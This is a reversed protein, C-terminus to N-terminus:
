PSSITFELEAQHGGGYPAGFRQEVRLSPFEYTKTERLQAGRLFHFGVMGAITLLVLGALSWGVISRSESVTAENSEQQTLIAAPLDAM